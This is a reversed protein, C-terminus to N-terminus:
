LALTCYDKIWVHAAYCFDRALFDGPLLEYPHWKPPPGQGLATPTDSRSFETTAVFPPVMGAAELYAYVLSCCTQQESAVGRWRGLHSTARHSQRERPRNYRTMIGDWVVQNYYPVLWRRAGDPRFLCSLFARSTEVDVTCNLQAVTITEHMAKAYRCWASLRTLAQGSFTQELLVVDRITEGPEVVVACHVPLAGHTIIASFAMRNHVLNFWFWSGAMDVPTSFLLDGRKLIRVNTQQLVHHVSPSCQEILAIEVPNCRRHALVQTYLRWLWVITPILLITIVATATTKIVAM